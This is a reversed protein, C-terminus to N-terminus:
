IIRDDQVFGCLGLFRRFGLGRVMCACVVRFGLGKGPGLLIYFVLGLGLFVAMFAM